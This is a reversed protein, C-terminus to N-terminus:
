EFPVGPEIYVVGGEVTAFPNGQRILSDRVDEPSADPPMGGSPDVEGSDFGGGEGIIADVVPDGTSEGGITISSQGKSGFVQATEGPQPMYPKFGLRTYHDAEAGTNVGVLAGSKPDRYFMKAGGGGGGGGGGRGSRGLAGIKASELAARRTDAGGTYEGSLMGPQLATLPNGGPGTGWVNQGLAQELVGATQQGGFAESWEGTNNIIAKALDGFSKMQDGRYKQLTDMAAADGAAAQRLYDGGLTMSIPQSLSPMVGAM